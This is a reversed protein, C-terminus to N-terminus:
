VRIRRAAFWFYATFLGCIAAIFGFGGFLNYRASFYGFGAGTLVLAANAGLSQFSDLTARMPSDIRHHLYGSVLPDALGSLLSVAGLAALGVAGPFVAMCGFGLAVAAVMTAILPRIRFRSGFAHALLSGPLQLVFLGSSFLGFFVVPVHLRNLYLQWFEYIFSMSAGM